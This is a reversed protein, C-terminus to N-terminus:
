LYTVHRDLSFTHTVSFPSCFPPHPRGSGAPVSGPALPTALSSSASSSALSTRFLSSTTLFRSLRSKFAFTMASSRASPCRLSWGTGCSGGVDCCCVWCIASMRTLVWLRAVMCLRYSCTRWFIFSFLHLMAQAKRRAPQGQLVSRPKMAIASSILTSELSSFRTRRSWLTVDTRSRFTTERLLSWRQM